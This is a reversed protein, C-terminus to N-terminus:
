VDNATLLKQFAKDTSIKRLFESIGSKTFVNLHSFIYEAGTLSVKQGIYIEAQEVKQPDGLRTGDLAYDVVWLTEDSVVLIPLLTAKAAPRAMLSIVLDEASALAQGWKDHVAADASSFAGDGFIGIQATSKGVPSEPPYFTSKVITNTPNSQYYNATGLPYMGPSRIVSHFAEEAPRPVRSIVLPCNKKLCKCEIALQIEVNVGVDVFARVDFQRNKGTVRDTYSGGLTARLGYGKVLRYISLELAFDDQSDVYRSIDAATIPEQKLLKQAM